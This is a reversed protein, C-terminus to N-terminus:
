EAISDRRTQSPEAVGSQKVGAAQRISRVELKLKLASLLTFIFSAPLNPKAASVYTEPSVVDGAIAPISHHATPRASIASTPGPLYQEFYGDVCILM